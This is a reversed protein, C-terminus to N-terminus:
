IQVKLNFQNKKIKNNKKNINIIYIIISNFHKNYKNIEKELIKSIKNINKYYFFKKNKKFM